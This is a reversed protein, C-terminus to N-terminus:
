QNKDNKSKFEEELINDIISDIEKDNLFEKGERKQRQIEKDIKMRLRSEIYNDSTDISESDKSVRADELGFLPSTSITNLMLHDLDKKFYPESVSTRGTKPDRYVRYIIANESAGQIITPSHTTFFFQINPFFERLQSVLRRQWIPHLHLEIEDLLLVGKFDKLKKAQPQNEQIHFILDSIWIMINKYGESLQDFSLEFGKEIFKVNQSSVTIEVSKDLLNHFLNKLEDLPVWNPLEISKSLIDNAGLRKELELAYSSTLLKEPSNLQLDANYLSMFGYTERHDSTYRGRHVGYAYFNKLFVLKEGGYRTGNTDTGNFYVSANAKLLDNIKGTYEHSTNREINRGNFALHLAMLILSKGDGNEGLFYIEKIGKIDSLQISDISFFNKIVCSSIFAYNNEQATKYLKQLKQNNAFIESIDKLLKTRTEFVTQSDSEDPFDKDILRELYFAKNDNIEKFLPIEFSTKIVGLEEALSKYHNRVRLEIQNKKEENLEFAISWGERDLLSNAYKKLVKFLNDITM